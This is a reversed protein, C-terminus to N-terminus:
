RRFEELGRRIETLLEQHQGETVREVEVLAEALRRSRGELEAATEAARRRDAERHEALNQRVIRGTQGNQYIGVGGAALLTVAVIGAVVALYYRRVSSRVDPDPNM